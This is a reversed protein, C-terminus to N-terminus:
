RTVPPRQAAASKRGLPAFKHSPNHILIRKSIMDLGDEVGRSELLAVLAQVVRAGASALLALHAALVPAVLYTAM